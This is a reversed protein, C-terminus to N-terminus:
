EGLVENLAPKSVKSLHYRVFLLEYILRIVLLTNLVISLVILVTVVGGKAWDPNYQSIQNVLVGISNVSYYSRLLTMMGMVQLAMWWLILIFVGRYRWKKSFLSLVGFLVMFMHSVITPFYYRGQMGYGYGNAKIFLFEWAEIGLFYVLGSFLLFIAPALQKIKRKKNKVVRSVWIGLGLVVVGLIRMQVRNIWRPLTVGL